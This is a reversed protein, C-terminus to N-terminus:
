ALAGKYEAPSLPLRVTVLRDDDAAVTAQLHGGLADVRDVIATLDATDVGGALRLSIRLDADDGALKVWAREAGSMRAQQLTEVVCFYATEEVSRDYREIDVTQVEAPISTSTSSRELAQLAVRLGETELLPPYIGHAVGRLEDVAGDIATALGALREDLADAGERQALTRAIGLKVKLAVVRQQAGDHLDRELRRRQADQAAILRRRSGRVDEARAVLDRNLRINRLLLGSGAAVDAVLERDAPTLPDNKPKMIGVAGFTEDLHVVPQSLSLEVDASDAASDPSAVSGAPWVGDPTLTDDDALWVTARDAGTGEALLRAVDQAAAGRRADALLGTVQALVDHPTTRDGYVMRNAFRELRSRAPEFAIAVVATALIPLLVGPDDTESRGLLFLPLVVVLAYLGSVVAALGLYTVSKSIIVDIDYLRYKTIAVSFAAIMVVLPILNLVNEVTPDGVSSGYTLRKAIEGLGLFATAFAIWRIQRRVVGSGSRYRVVLSGICVLGSALTINGLIEAITSVVGGPVPVAGTSRPHNAAIQFVMALIFMTAVFRAVPQWRPSPFDGDPFHLMALTLPLLFAPMWASSIATAFIAVSLPHDAPILEQAALETEVPIQLVIGVLAMAYLGGFFAAVTYIWISRNRPQSPLVTWALAGFGLGILANVPTLSNWASEWRGIAIATGLGIVAMLVAAGSIIRGTRILQADTMTM